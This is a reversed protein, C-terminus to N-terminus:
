YNSANTLLHGITLLHGFTSYFDLVLFFELNKRFKYSMKSFFHKGKERCNMLNGVSKFFDRVFDRVIVETTVKVKLMLDHSM